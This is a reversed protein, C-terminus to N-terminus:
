HYNQKFWQYTERIGEELPIKPGWGMSYLRSVDLLKRPTGDPRSTDWVIQGSYGVIKAVMGALEKVSLEEGSGINIIDPEDYNSMLFVCARALDDVHLFERCPIGTGWLTVSPLLNIKAHHFKQIMGPLVHSTEPDFNDGPGYLNNPMVAIFNCGYQRRYAQCMIIGAIKAIAYPENTPELSGTLLYDEQLPQPAIKPYICSSGLFLIKKVKYRYASEIVNTEIMLNDYIFNAPQSSNAQIGGVRAAALFVFEPQELAFFSTVGRQDRLDLEDFNRTILKQYGETQLRRLLASGVLGTHGAVYIRADKPINPDAL